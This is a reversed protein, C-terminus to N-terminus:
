SGPSDGILRACEAAHSHIMFHGADDLQTVACNPMLASLRSAILKVIPNAHEGVVLKTPINLARYDDLSPKFALNDRWQRINDATTSSMMERVQTPLADFAGEGGWLNIVRSFAWKENALFAREYEDVFDRVEDVTEDDGTEALFTIPLPEFLTLSAVPLQRMLAVGLCVIGGYSHGVLHVPESTLETGVMQVAEIDQGLLSGDPSAASSSGCGTLDITVSCFRSSEAHQIVSRWASSNAFSGHVFIMPEGSGAQSYSVTRDRRIAKNM